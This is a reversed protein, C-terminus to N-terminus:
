DRIANWIMERTKESFGGKTHIMEALVVGAAFIDSRGDLHSGSLQEPLCILFANRCSKRGHLRNRALNWFGYRRGPRNAYDHHKGTEFRSAGVRGHHIAELGALFQAAVDRAKTLHLPGSQGLLDSLTTGDVYEM